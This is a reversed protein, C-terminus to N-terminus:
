LLKLKGTIKDVEKDQAPGVGVATIEGPKIQTLGKDSILVCPLGLKKATAYLKRLEKASKVKLVVKKAGSEMWKERSKEDSNLFAALSAHASEAAIKGKGMNLETRIVIAQKMNCIFVRQYKIVVISLSSACCLEPNRLNSTGRKM